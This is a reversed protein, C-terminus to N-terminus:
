IFFIIKKHNLLTLWKGKPADDHNFFYGDKDRVGDKVLTLGKENKVKKEKM